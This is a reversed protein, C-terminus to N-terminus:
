SCATQVRCGADSSLGALIERLHALKCELLRREVRTLGYVWPLLSSVEDYVRGAETRHTDSNTLRLGFDLRHTVFTVLQRDTKARLEFLKNSETVTNMDDARM